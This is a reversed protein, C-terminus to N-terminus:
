GRKGGGLLLAELAQEEGVTEIGALDALTQAVRLVRFRRAGGLRDFPGLRRDLLRRAGESLDFRSVECAEADANCVGAGLRREQRERAALVRERVVESAEGPPGGIEAASPQRVAAVIDIRDSLAGSLRSRYREIAVPSCCCEPDAEGKGCPCPNAAAALIFRSPLNRRSGARAVSVEGSELPGRLAELTDRRFEGLEDLFLVGRHALSVEGLRMPRASGLLGAVSIMHHPARLPRRRQSGRSAIGVASAIRAVELAEEGSLPPLISPLRTAAMSKGCGPPGVMLLSHAGAAVIELTRALEPIGRLDALDPLPVDIHQRKSPARQATGQGGTISSLQGLHDLTLIEIGSVLAAEAGNDAPVVIAEAGEDRAAEAFSVVGPVRRLAGNLAVEGVLPIRAKDWHLQGSACLLGVAIPLDLGPGAKRLSAPALNAVIRRLPYEFGSNVLAARIRERGERVAADPLGVLSFAPLGRQVDIEVTVACADLGELTYSRTCAM